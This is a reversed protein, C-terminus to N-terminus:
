IGNIQDYRANAEQVTNVQGYYADAEKSMNATTSTCGVISILAIALILKKM